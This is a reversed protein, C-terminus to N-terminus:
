GNKLVKVNQSFVFFHQFFLWLLFHRTSFFVAFRFLCNFGAEFSLFAPGPGPAGTTRLATNAGRYATRPVYSKASQGAACARLGSGSEWESAWWSRREQKGLRLGLGL